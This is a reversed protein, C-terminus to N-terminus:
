EVGKAWPLHGDWRECMKGLVPAGFTGGIFTAYLLTDAGEPRLADKMLVWAAVMFGWVAILRLVSPKGTEDQMMKGIFSEPTRSACILMWLSILLMLALLLLPVDSSAHEILWERM